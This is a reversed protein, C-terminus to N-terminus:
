LESSRRREAWDIRIGDAERPPWHEIRPWPPDPVPAVYTWMAQGGAVFAVRVYDFPPEGFGEFDDLRRRLQPSDRLELLDGVVKSYAAGAPEVGLSPVTWDYPTGAVQPLTPHLIMAPYGEPRLRLEGAVQWASSRVVAEALQGYNCEGPRLSGYAFLYLSM